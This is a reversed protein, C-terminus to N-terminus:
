NTLYNFKSLINKNIKNAEEVQKALLYGRKVAEKDEQKYKQELYQRSQNNDLPKNNIQQTKRENLLQGINKYDKRRDDDTVPVINETHAKKLDEYPLKSFLSSSYSDPKQCGLDYYSNDEVEKIGEYVVLERKKRKQEQFADGMQTMSSIQTNELDDESILWDGYGNEEYNNTLKNKEFIENFIKNFNKSNKFNEITKEREKYELDKTNYKTKTVCTSNKKKFNYINYLIRYAKTFFLFVDKRMKSKDPHTMLVMKKSKKLEEEGFHFDIHFLKLIDDLSYNNIDLDINDM